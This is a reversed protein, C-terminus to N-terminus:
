VKTVFEQVCYELLLLLKGFFSNYKINQSDLPREDEVEFSIAALEEARSNLNGTFLINPINQEQCFTMKEIVKQTEGSKSICILMSINDANNNIIGSSDTANVFLTKIGNVLLKKHLYDALISSFGTAYITIFKDKNQAYIEKMETISPQIKQTDITFDIIASVRQNSPRFQNKLYYFLELYGSFELKQALRVIAAPSTFLRQALARLSVGDLEEVHNILYNLIEQENESLKKGKMIIDLDM